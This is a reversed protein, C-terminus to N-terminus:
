RKLRVERRLTGRGDATQIRLVVVVKLSGARRLERRAKRSLRVTLTHRRDDRIRLAKSTGIRKGSHRVVARVTCAELCAVRLRLARQLRQSKPARLSALREQAEGAVGGEDRPAAPRAASGTVRIQTSATATAGDPDTVTVTATYAGPTRYTHSISPGGAKAGDGFDWVILLQRGEPDRAASTFQV